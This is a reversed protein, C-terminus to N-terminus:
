KVNNLTRLVTSLCEKLAKRLSALPKQTDVHNSLSNWFRSCSVSFSRGGETERKFIPCVLNLGGHM